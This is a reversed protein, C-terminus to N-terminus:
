RSSTSTTCRQGGIENGAAVLDKLQQRSMHEADGIVAGNVFFTAHMHHFNLIELTGFQDAVGDDFQITM